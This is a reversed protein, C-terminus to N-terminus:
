SYRDSPHPSSGTEHVDELLHIRHGSHGLAALAPSGPSLKQDSAEAYDIVAHGEYDWADSRTSGIRFEGTPVWIVEMRDFVRM